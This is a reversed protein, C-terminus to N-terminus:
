LLTQIIEDPENEYKKIFKHKLLKNVDKRDNPNKKLCANIFSRAKRSVSKGAHQKGFEKANPPKNGIINLAQILPKKDFGPPIGCLLEIVTIGLSWIDVKDTYGIRQGLIEPAMWCVTGTFTGRVKENITTASVGFDSVKIKNDMGILLNAAKIDRHIIKISHLYKLALLIQRCMVSVYKEDFGNPYKKKILDLISMKCYEMVAYKKDNDNFIDIHNIINPHKLIVGFNEEIKHSNEDNILLKIACLKKNYTSKWIISNPSEYIKTDLSYNM